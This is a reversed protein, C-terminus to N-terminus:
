ALRVDVQTHLFRGVDEAEARAGRAVSPALADFPRIEVQVATATRATAWTGV